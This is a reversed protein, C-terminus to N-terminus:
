GNTPEKSIEAEVSAIAARANALGAKPDAGRPTLMDKLAELLQDRQRELEPIRRLEAAAQRQWGVRYGLRASDVLREANSKETM